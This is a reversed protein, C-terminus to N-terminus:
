KLRIPIGCELKWVADAQESLLVSLRGIVEREAREKADGPVIGNGVTPLILVADRYRNGIQEAKERLMHGAEIDGKQLFFRIM